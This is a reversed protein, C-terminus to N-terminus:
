GVAETRDLEAAMLMEREATLDVLWGTSMEARSRIRRVQGDGTVLILGMAEDHEALWEAVAALTEKQAGLDSLVVCVRLPLLQDALYERRTGSGRAPVDPVLICLRAFRDAQRFTAGTMACAQPTSYMKPM